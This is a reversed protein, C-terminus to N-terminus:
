VWGRRELEAEIEKFSAFPLWAIKQASCWDALESKAFTLTAALAPCRDTVGNGVFVTTYGQANWSRIAEGKCHGCDQCVASPFPFEVTWRGSGNTQALRNALYPIPGLKSKKLVTEVCLDFGGTLLIVPVGKKRMQELFPPFTPEIEVSSVLLSKLEEESAQVGGMEQTLGERISLDGCVVKQQVERWRPNGYRNLIEVLTDQRTITGDFDCAILIPRSAGESM